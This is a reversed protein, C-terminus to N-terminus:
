GEAGLRRELDAVRQELQALRTELSPTAEGTPPPTQPRPTALPEPAAPIKMESQESPLFLRHSVIQGRGAPTVEWLLGKQKLRSLIPMLDSVGSIPEMRAARGRLEGATQEGRLLLEAIVALEVKDVGLWDYARHRYKSVRGDGQVESVAKMDRLEDLTAMVDDAALDMQPKRNSKQNCGTKIANVTLPYSDPTTKAKEILVGLVRRQMPDLPRWPPQSSANPEAAENQYDENVSFRAFLRHYKRSWPGHTARRVNAMRWLETLNFSEIGPM